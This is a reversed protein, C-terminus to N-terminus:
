DSKPLSQRIYWDHFDKDFVGDKKLMYYGYSKAIFDLIEDFNKDIESEEIYECTANIIEKILNQNWALNQTITVTDNKQLSVIRKGVLEDLTCDFVKAIAALTELRPNASDGILIKRVASPSLGAQKELQATNMRNESLKTQITEKLKYNLDNEM